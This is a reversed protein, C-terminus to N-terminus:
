ERGLRGLLLYPCTRNRDSRPLSILTNANEAIPKQPNITDAPAHLL